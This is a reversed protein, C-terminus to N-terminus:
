CAKKPPPKMHINTYGINVQLIFPFFSLFPSSTHGLTTDWVGFTHEANLGHSHVSIIEEHFWVDPARVFLHWAVFCYFSDPSSIELSLLCCWEGRENHGEERRQGRESKGGFPKM